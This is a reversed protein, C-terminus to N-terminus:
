REVEQLSRFSDGTGTGVEIRTWQGRLSRRLNHLAALASSGGVLHTVIAGCPTVVNATYSYRRV